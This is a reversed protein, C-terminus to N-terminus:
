NLGLLDILAVKIKNKNLHTDEIASDKTFFNLIFNQNKYEYSLTKLSQHESSELHSKTWNYSQDKIFIIKQYPLLFVYNKNVVRLTQFIIFTM